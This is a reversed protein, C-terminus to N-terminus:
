VCICAFVSMYVCICSSDYIKAINLQLALQPALLGGTRKLHIRESFYAYVRMYACVLAYVRMCECIRAYVRM